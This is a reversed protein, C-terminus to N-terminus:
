AHLAGTLDEGGAFWCERKQLCSARGTTLLTLASFSSLM